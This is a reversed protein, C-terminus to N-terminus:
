PRCLGRWTGRCGSTRKAAESTVRPRIDSVRAGAVVDAVVKETGSADLQGGVFDELAAKERRYAERRDASERMHM